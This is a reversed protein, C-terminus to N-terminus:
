DFLRDTPLQLGGLAASVVPAPQRCIRRRARAGALSPFAIVEIARELPDVLWYERVGYRRYWGLKRTRDYRTTGESLVEIAIDPAGWIQNRIIGLRATSIFVLDPQLILAKREDLVVDIPSVCIRGLGRQRVAPALASVLNTVVAQHSYYPAPPEHVQTYLLERRRMTEPGRLYEWTADSYGMDVVIGDDLRRIL